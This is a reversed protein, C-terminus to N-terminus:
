TRGDGVSIGFAENRGPRGIVGPSDLTWLQSGDPTLGAADENYIVAAAGASIFRAVDHGPVGIVLADQYSTATLNRSALSIGFRDETRARGPVGPTDLTWLQDGDACVTPFTGFCRSLVAVAGANAIVASDEGPVGIALEDRGYVQFDGIALASGFGDGPEAEDDVFPSDQTWEQSEPAALGDTRAYMVVVKGAGDSSSPAGIALDDLAPRGGLPGAALAAGFRDGGVRDGAVGPSGQSWMQDGIATIGVGPEGYLVHVFGSDDGPEGIALDDQPGRGFDGAALAWAFHTGYGQPEGRVGPSAESWEQNGEITLGGSSGYLIRVHGITLYDDYDDQIGLALDALGDGDFDGTELVRGFQGFQGAPVGPALGPTTSAWRQDRQTTLGEASGYLVNVQEWGPTGIVLDAFGDGDFDGAATESGFQSDATEDVPHGWALGPSTPLWLQNGV